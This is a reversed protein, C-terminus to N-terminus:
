NDGCKARDMIADLKEEMPRRSSPQSFRRVERIGTGLPKM